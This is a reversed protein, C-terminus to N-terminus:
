VHHAFQKLVQSQFEEQAKELLGADTTGTALADAVSKCSLFERIEPQGSYFFATLAIMIYFAVLAAGEGWNTKAGATVYNVLFAAGLLLAVEFFDFLLSMPRGTIWGLIVLVPMWFMVFQISADISTTSALSETPSPTGFWYKLVHRAYWVLALVADASFSVFPLLILGFWEEQIGGFGRLVELSTLLFVTCAATFGVCILLLVLCVWSNVEPEKEALEQEELLIEIDIDIQKLETPAPPNHLFVRSCIYVILLIISLGRSITVM